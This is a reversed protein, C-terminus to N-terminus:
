RSGCCRQTYRHPHSPTSGRLTPQNFIERNFIEAVTLKEIRSPERTASRTDVDPARGTATGTAPPPGTPQRPQNSQMSRNPQDTPTPLWSRCCLSPCPHRCAGMQKDGENKHRGRETPTQRRTQPLCRVLGPCPLCSRPLPLVTASRPLGPHGSQPLGPCTLCPLVPAPCSRPLSRPRQRARTEWCLTGVVNM